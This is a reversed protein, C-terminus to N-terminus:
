VLSWRIKSKGCLSRRRARAPARLMIGVVVPAALAIPRCIGSAISSRASRRPTSKEPRSKRQVDNLSDDHFDLIFNNGLHAWQVDLVLRDMDLPSTEPPVQSNGHGRLDMRIVRYHRCLGPVWAYFRKAHGVAAHLLLLTDAKRWPDTYDDIYYALKIGDSAAFTDVM